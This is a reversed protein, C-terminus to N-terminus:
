NPKQQQWPSLCWSSFCSPSSLTEKLKCPITWWQPFGHCSTLAPTQLLFWLAPISVQSAARGPMSLWSEQSSTQLNQCLLVAVWVGKVLLSACQVTLFFPSVRWMLWILGPSWHPSLHRLRIVRMDEALKRISSLGVKRPVTSGMTPQARRGWGCDLCHGVFIDVAWDSPPSEETSTRGIGTHWASVILIVVKKSPCKM